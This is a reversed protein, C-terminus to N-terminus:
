RSAGIQNNLRRKTGLRPSCPRHPNCSCTEPWPQRNACCSTAAYAQRRRDSHKDVGVNHRQTCLGALLGIRREGKAENLQAPPDVVVRSNRMSGNANALEIGGPERNVAKDDRAPHLRARETLDQLRLQVPTPVASVSGHHTAFGCAKHRVRPLAVREHRNGHIEAVWHGRPVRDVRAVLLGDALPQRQHAVQLKM